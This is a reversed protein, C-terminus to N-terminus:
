VAQYLLFDVLAGTVRMRGSSPSEAGKHTNLAFTLNSRM